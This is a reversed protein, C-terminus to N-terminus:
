RGSEPSAYGLGKGAACKRRFDSSGFQLILGILQDSSKRLRKKRKRLRAAYIAPLQLREGLVVCDNYLGLQRGAWRLLSMYACWEPHEGFGLFELQYNFSKIRRRLRHRRKDSSNRRLKQCSRWMRRQEVCLGAPFDDDLVVVTWLALETRLEDPLDDNPAPAPPVGPDVVAFQQRPTEAALEQLTEQMILADRGAGLARSAARLAKDRSHALKPYHYAMLRWGASLRKCTLRVQHVRVPDEQWGPTLTGLQGQIVELVKARCSEGLSLCRSM